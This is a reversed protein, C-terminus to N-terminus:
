PGPSARLIFNINCEPGTMMNQVRLLYYSDKESRLILYFWYLNIIPTFLLM